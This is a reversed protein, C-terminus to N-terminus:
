DNIIIKQWEGLLGWSSVSCCYKYNPSVVTLFLINPILDHYLEYVQPGISFNEQYKQTLLCSKNLIIILILIKGAISEIIGM